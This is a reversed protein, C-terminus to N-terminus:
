QKTWNQTKCLVKLVCGRMKMKSGNVRASGSYDKNEAPDTVTGSYKSGSGKVRGIRKGAYKGTKLTICFANGCKKISATEGSQTTWNGEIPQAAFTQVAFTVALATAALLTSLKKMTKERSGQGKFVLYQKDFVRIVSSNM